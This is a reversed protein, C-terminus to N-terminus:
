AVAGSDSRNCLMSESVAAALNWALRHIATETIIGAAFGTAAGSIRVATGQDGPLHM